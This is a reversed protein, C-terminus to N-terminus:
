LYIFTVFKFMDQLQNIIVSVDFEELIVDPLLLWNAYNKTFVYIIFNEFLLSIQQFM